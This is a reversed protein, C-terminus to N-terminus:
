FTYRLHDTMQSDNDSLDVTREEFVAKILSWDLVQSDVSLILSCYVQISTTAIISSTEFSCTSYHSGLIELCTVFLAHFEAKQISQDFDFVEDWSTLLRTDYTMYPTKFEVLIQVELM